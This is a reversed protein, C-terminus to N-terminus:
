EKNESCEENENYFFDVIDYYDDYEGLFCYDYDAISKECDSDFEDVIKNFLDIRNSKFIFHDVEKYNDQLEKTLNRWFFESIKSLSGIKPNYHSEKRDIIEILKPDSFDGKDDIQFSLPISFFYLENNRLMLSFVKSVQFILLDKESDERSEILSIKIIIDDEKLNLKNEM